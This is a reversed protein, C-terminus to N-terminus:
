YGGGQGPMSYDGTNPNYASSGGGQFMSMLGGVGGAGPVFASGIQGAADGLSSGVGAIGAAQNQNLRIKEGLAQNEGAAQNFANNISAEQTAVNQGSNFENVGTTGQAQQLQQNFAQNNLSQGLQGAANTAQMREAASNAAATAGAAANANAANQGAGLEGAIARGSNLTGSRAANGLAAQVAAGQQQANSLQAAQLASREQDTLGGGESVGQLQKLAGQAAELDGQNGTLNAYPNNVYQPGVATQLGQYNALQAENAQSERGREAGSSAYGIANGIDSFLSGM